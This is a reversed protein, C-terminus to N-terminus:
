SARAADIEEQCAMCFPAAPDVQLRELPIPSGCQCCVGFEGGALRALAAELRRQQRLLMQKRGASLAQQQIVDIRSLRGIRQPDAEVDPASASTASLATRVLELEHRIRERFSELQPQNLM